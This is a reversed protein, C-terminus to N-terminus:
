LTWKAALRETIMEGVREPSVGDVHRVFAGDIDDHVECNRYYFSHEYKVAVQEIV